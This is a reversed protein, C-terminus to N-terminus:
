IKEHRMAWTLNHPFDTQTRMRFAGYRIRGVCVGKVKWDAASFPEVDENFSFLFKGERIERYCKICDDGGKYAQVVDGNEYQKDEIIAIDSPLLIDAMSYGSVIRGWREHDTGWDVVQEYDVDGYMAGPVGASISGFVPILRSGARRMNVSGMEKGKSRLVQLMRDYVDKDRPHSGEPDLWKNLNTHSTQVQEALWRRSLDYKYLLSNIEYARPDDVAM